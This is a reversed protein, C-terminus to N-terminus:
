GANPQVDASEKGYNESGTSRLDLNRIVGVAPQVYRAYLQEDPLVWGSTGDGECMPCEEWQGWCECAGLAAALLADRAIVEKLRADNRRATGSRKDRISLDKKAILGALQNGLTVALWEDLPQYSGIFRDDDTLQDQVHMLVREVFAVPDFSLGELLGKTAM